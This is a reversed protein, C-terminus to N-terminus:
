RTSIDLRGLKVRLYSEGYRVRAEADEGNLACRAVAEPLYFDEWLGPLEELTEGDKAGLMAGAAPNAFVVRGGPDAVLVGEGLNDLIVKLREKVTEAEARATRERSLLRIREKEARKRETIDTQVAIFNALRGEEDYVPSIQLENWFVAGDKKYNRM